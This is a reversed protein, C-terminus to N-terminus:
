ANATSRPEPELRRQSRQRSKFLGALSFAVIALGLVAPTLLMWWALGAAVGLAAPWRKAMSLCYDCKEPYRWAAGWAAAIALALVWRGLGLGTAARTLTLEGGPTGQYYASSPTLFLRAVPRAIVDDGDSELDDESADAAIRELMKSWAAERAEDVAGVAAGGSAGLRDVWPQFWLRLEWEPLQFALPGADIVAAIQERRAAARHSSPTLAVSGDSAALNATPEGEVQWLSRYIVLPRGDVQVQPAQFEFQGTRNGQRLRYGVTIVRPLYRPGAPAQWRDRDMVPRVITRGDVAAHLLEAGAPLKVIVDSAGGPQVIMQTVASWDGSGDVALRTEALRVAENRLADPFVRQEAVFPARLVRQAALDGPLGAAEALEDPLPQRELGRLTWEATQNGPTKPFVLFIRQEAADLVRVQPFRIRQDAELAVVGSLKLTLEEGVAVPKELRVEIIRQNTDGTSPEVVVVARPEAVFPERWNADAILRVRDVTGRTVRGRLTLSGIPEAPTALNLTLLGDVAVRAENKTIELEPQVEANRSVSYEGVMIGATRVGGIPTTAPPPSEANGSWAVQVDSTRHVSVGIVSARTSELGVRPLPLRHEDSYPTRGSVQLTHPEDLPRNLFVCMRDPRPRSWRVAVTSERDDLAVSVDNVTLAPPVALRYVLLDGEVDSIAASYGIAADEATCLVDLSERPTFRPALPEVHMSWGPEGATVVYQLSPTAPLAGWQREIEGAPAATMGVPAEERARLQLDVSAAFHHSATEVGLVRVSPFDIHGLSVSRQVQFQLPITMPLRPPARFKLETVTPSGAYSQVEEVPSDESLPLLKLQPSAAIELTDLSTADGTIRLQVDVRAFAPDVELWTLQDVSVGSAATRLRKPWSAELVDADAISAVTRTPQEANAAVREANITIGTLGAPHTVEVRAGPLPPVRLSLQNQNAGPTSRPVVKWLLEHDGPEAVTFECADGAENWRLTIPAGDLTHGAARGDAQQRDVPLTVVAGRQFTRWHLRLAGGTCVVESRAADQVLEVQYTAAVLAGDAGDYRSRQSSPMLEALLSAPAYVDSGAPKGDADIPYLVGQPPIAVEAANVSAHIPTFVVGLFLATVITSTRGRAVSPTLVPRSTRMLLERAVAGAIAGLLVAQPAVVLAVPLVLCLIAAIVAVAMVGRPRKPWQWVAAVAACLWTVHWRARSDDIRRLEMPLPTTVFEQTAASWGHPISFSDLRAATALAVSQESRAASTSSGMVSRLGFSRDTSSAPQSALPGFLRPRWGANAHRETESEVTFPAPTAVTWRGRLVPFSTRPLPPAIREVADLRRHQGRLDVTVTVERRGSPLPITIQRSRKARPGLAIAEDDIRASVFDFGTP